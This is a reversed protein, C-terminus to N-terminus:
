RASRRRSRGGFLASRRVPHQVRQEVLGDIVEAIRAVTGAVVEGRGGTAGFRVHSPDQRAADLARELDTRDECLLVQGQRGLRRSFRQQHGDVHEGLTPDRPVVVPMRGHQWAECITAPGGHTVLVSATAMLEQLQEHPLLTHGEGFRPARASGHQFVVRTPQEQQEGWADLWDVLRDFKHHDTGVIVLVTFVGDAEDRPSPIEPVQTM